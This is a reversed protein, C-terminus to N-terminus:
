DCKEGWFDVFDGFVVDIGLIKVVKLELCALVKFFGIERLLFLWSDMVGSLIAGFRWFPLFTIRVELPLRIGLFISLLSSFTKPM